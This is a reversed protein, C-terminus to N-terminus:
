SKQVHDRIYHCLKNEIQYIESGELIEIGIEYIQRRQEEGLQYFLNHFYEESVKGSNQTYINKARLFQNALKDLSFEKLTTEVIACERLSYFQHFLDIFGEMEIESLMGYLLYFKEEHEDLEEHNAKKVNVYNSFSICLNACNSISQIDELNNPDNMNNAIKYGM